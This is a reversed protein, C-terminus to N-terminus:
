KRELKLLSYPCLMRKAYVLAMDQMLGVLLLTLQIAFVAGLKFHKNENLM